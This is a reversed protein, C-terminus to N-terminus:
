LPSHGKVRNYLPVLTRACCSCGKSQKLESIHFFFCMFHLAQLVVIRAAKLIKKKKTKEGKPRIELITKFNKGRKKKIVIVRFFLFPM